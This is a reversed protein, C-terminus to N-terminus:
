IKKGFHKLFNMIFGLGRQRDPDKLMKFIGFLGVKAPPENQANTLAHNATRAIDILHQPDYGEERAKRMREDFIDAGMAILGPLQNSMQILGEMKEMMDPATIKEALSLASKIREDLNVGNADAERYIEDMADVKMAVLGSMQDTLKFLHNLKDVMAPATLKEAIELANQLREEINVGKADARMYADDVFDAAMAVMGPGQHMVVTLDEVAKDLTDIKALLHEIAQLTRDENLRDQLKQGAATNIPIALTNGNTNM